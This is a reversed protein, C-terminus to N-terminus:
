RIFVFSAKNSIGISGKARILPHAILIVKKVGHIFRSLRFIVSFM